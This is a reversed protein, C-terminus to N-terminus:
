SPLVVYIDQDKTSSKDELYKKLYKTHDNMLDLYMSKTTFKGSNTLGWVFRDQDSNIEVHV